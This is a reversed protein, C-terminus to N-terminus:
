RDGASFPVCGGIGSTVVTGASQPRPQRLVALLEDLDALEVDVDPADLAGHLSGARRVRITRWGLSRPGAFDKAPNDAVYACEQGGVGLAREVLEFARVHPKPQQPCREATLVVPDAWRALGLRDAKAQQSSLPGDSVVAAMGAQSVADLARRADPLLTISPEHQRYATVLRSVLDPSGPVGLHSLARDFVDGRGGAAFLAAAADAFGPVGLERAVVAGVASFGSLVYDRELYLTDDIDFVVCRVPRTM